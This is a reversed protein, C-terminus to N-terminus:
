GRSRSIFLLAGGALAALGGAIYWTTQTTYGGTFTNSVREVFSDTAALGAILFVIGGVALIIGLVPTLKM